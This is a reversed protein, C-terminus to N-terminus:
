KKGDCQSEIFEIVQISKDVYESVRALSIGSDKGHAIQHRNAMIADIAEKRGEENLFESLEAAWSKKFSRAVEVFRSSKPNQIKDLQLEVFDGIAASGCSRAYCSYVEKIANELFGSALVCIYRAWHARMEVQEIPLGNVQRM